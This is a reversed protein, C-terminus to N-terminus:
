KRPGKVMDIFKSSQQEMEVLYDDVKTRFFRYFIMAPIAVLIGLGTNYLAVSIGYALQQPNTGTPAQAGFIEIMGVVTGFLGMLPAVTAITGLAPLYKELKHAVLSGAEEMSAKMADRSALESRLGNAFISGMPSSADLKQILDPSVQRSKYLEMVEELLRKPMVKKRQLSIFREIILAVAIISTLILFWIPWGAAQIISFLVFSRFVVRSESKKIGSL